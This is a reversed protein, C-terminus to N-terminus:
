QRAASSNPLWQPLRVASIEACWDIPTGCGSMRNPVSSCFCCYKGRTAFPSIEANASVSGPTPDSGAFICVCASFLPLVMVYLVTKTFAQGPKKSKLGMWMGFRGVAFLDSVFLLLCFVAGLLLPQPIILLGERLGLLVFLEMVVMGELVLLTSIPAVFVRKLGLFYGDIIQNATLPTSLLMELTGSVRAEAFVYSAQFAAWIALLYHLGLASYFLGAMM